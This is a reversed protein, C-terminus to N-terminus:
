QSGEERQGSASLSKRVAEVAGKEFPNTGADNLWRNWAWVGHMIADNAHRNEHLPRLFLEEAGGAIGADKIDAGQFEIPINALRGILILGGIVRPTELADWPPPPGSGVDKPYLLFDEIVMREVGEFPGGGAFLDFHVGLSDAVDDVFDWNPTQGAELLDGDQWLAWGTTDGPDVTLWKM